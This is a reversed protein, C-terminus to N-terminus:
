RTASVVLMECPGVFGGPGEFEALARHIEKWAADREPVPLGALMQHLAGFSDREFAVCEEASAMRLPSPVSEVAIDRFGATATRDNESAKQQATESSRSPSSFNKMYFLSNGHTSDPEVRATEVFGLKAMVRRSATNWDRVTTWLRRYGSEKAWSLSGM